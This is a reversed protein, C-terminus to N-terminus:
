PRLESWTLNQLPSAIAIHSKENVAVIPPAQPDDARGDTKCLSDVTCSGHFSLLYLTIGSLSSPVSVGRAAYYGAAGTM